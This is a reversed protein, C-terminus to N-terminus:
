VDSHVSVVILKTRKRVSVVRHCLAPSSGDIELNVPRRTLWTVM